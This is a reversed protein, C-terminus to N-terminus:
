ATRAPRTSVDGAVWTTTTLFRLPYDHEPLESVLGSGECGDEEAGRARQDCGHHDAALRLRAREVVRGAPVRLDLLRDEVCGPFVGTLDALVPRAQLGYRYLPALQALAPSSWLWTFSTRLRQPM